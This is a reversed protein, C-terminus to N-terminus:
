DEVKIFVKGEENELEDESIKTFEIKLNHDGTIVIEDETEVVKINPYEASITNQSQNNPINNPNEHGVACIRLTDESFIYERNAEGSPANQLYTSNALSSESLDVAEIKSCSFSMLLVLSALIIQLVRKLFDEGEWFYSEHSFM